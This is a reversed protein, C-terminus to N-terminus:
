VERFEGEVTGAEEKRGEGEADPTGDATAGNPGAGYVAQGIEQMRQSLEEMAERIRDVDDTALAERVSKVSAEVREKLDADIKEANERLTKEASYALTDAANRIEVSERRAADESAHTEAERRLREVEDKSLGSSPQITIHQEKSTAKDRAAVAVVGNADINFEVEVQPVGRPAPLIGDLIFRALSKNDGAMSREGQLVHIEVSPQNDAATSFTQKASTPITTNREILPTMVGGLTEIGLTLPTVDLLLVDKVEGRLVGAQIAAGIAVVEDPNVGKHPEKGFFEQVRKQV